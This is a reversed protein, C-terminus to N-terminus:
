VTLAKTHNYVWSARRFLENRSLQFKSLGKKRSALSAFASGVSAAWVPDKTKLFTSLWSGAFVDGAGTSDRIKPDRFAPVQLREDPRICIVSGRSGLTLISYKPGSKSLWDVIGDRDNARAQPKAEEISSQVMDCKELLLELNRREIVVKGDRTSKRVFGQLDASLFRTKSRLTRVLHISVEQFVPGLHVGDLKRSINPNEIKRGAEVIFLKRSNNSNIIRFRTSPGRGHKVRSLDIGNALLAKLFSKPYDVGVYGIIGVRAGLYAAANSAFLASGGPTIKLKSSLSLEDLTLNGCVTM